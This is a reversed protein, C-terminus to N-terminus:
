PRPWGAVGKEDGLAQVTVPVRWTLAKKDPADKSFEGQTLTLTTKGAACTANSVTILPVGPQLTFDHAIAKIPKGAATEVASWLDDSVTNGHANQKMYARVGARWADHGVYSELMRIVAEGKQYTIADFAQSAQEVTTVHQVVPHTTQLADLNM